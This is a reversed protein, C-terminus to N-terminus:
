TARTLRAGGCRWTCRRVQRWRREWLPGAPVRSLQELGPAATTMTRCAAPSCYRGAAIGTAALQKAAGSSVERKVLLAYVAICAVLLGCCLKWSSARWLILWCRWRRDVHSLHTASAIGGVVLLAVAVACAPLRVKPAAGGRFEDPATRAFLGAGCGSLVTFLVLSWQITM